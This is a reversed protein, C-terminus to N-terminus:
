LSRSLVLADDKTGDRLLYYGPRTGIQAFGQGAYFNRAPSNRAAVELFVTEVDSQRALGFLETLLSSAVGQRQAKPDTAIALIECEGAVIRAIVGGNPRTLFICHPTVLTEAVDQASWPRMEVYARDLLDAFAAPTV